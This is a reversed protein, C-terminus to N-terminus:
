FHTYGTRSVPIESGAEDLLMVGAGRGVRGIEAVPTRSQEAARAVADRMSVPSTFAIEYDDGATVARVLGDLPDQWTSKLASSIAIRVADVCVSVDSVTSIHGLDAILGDSVDLSASAIGVLAKGLALRPQPVQYRNILYDRADDPVSACEGKLCSLGGGADGISGSVFVIDDVRAGGRPLMAGAPVHGFATIVITMPGPTSTTDGGLLSIGFAEQDEELGRAYARLWEISLTAPVSLAMLYGAVTCGKAALDSLNVRLAKKAILQPPDSARFHVGEVLADTTVVLDFGVPPTAVAADDRLGFAGFETALPAFLEAILAFEGPRDSGSNTM